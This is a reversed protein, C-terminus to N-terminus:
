VHQHRGNVTIASVPRVPCLQECAGCGICVEEAVTPILANSGASEVMQIAGVPCVRACKGCNAKETASLCSELNVHATGIHYQTKEERTIKCIAGSPCLESCRTCEPRCYGKEYSMEPQMLRELSTSPRLVNNPCEAVCLQCGTCKRYFDKVSKSGPPTIPVSREPAQKPLVEAFGGDVKKVRQAKAEIGKLALSGAAIASGALFARRSSARDNDPMVSGDSGAQSNDHMVSGDSGAQGPTKGGWAFRYSLAGFKCEELCNFCDVCRSYDIKASDKGIAICQAKCNHECAKCHKCKDADIVPRFMAFRSFFSLTTGVPCISNCYTRGGKWALIVIVILTGIAILFTPISRIWVERPYFAYSGAREAFWALLNNGWIYLPQLLNQVMRGYASYPALLAVFVQVGAILAIIFLAWVGYRLWKIEKKYKYPAKKKHTGLWSIGDQFVGLPCIVSCYVRGFVLTVLVLGVIVGLNLALVAPLFQLKAMWGLYGHLIGTIDLLLLTIGIWFLWALGIRIKKLM